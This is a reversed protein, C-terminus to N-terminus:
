DDRQTYFILAICERSAAGAVSDFQVGLGRPVSMPIELNLFFPGNLNCVATAMVTGASDELHGGFANTNDTTLNIGWINYQRGAVAPLLGFDATSTIEVSTTSLSGYNRINTNSNRLPNGYGGGGMLTTDDAM